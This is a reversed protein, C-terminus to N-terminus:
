AYIDKNQRQSHLSLHRHHQHSSLAISVAPHIISLQWLIDLTVTVAIAQPAIAAAYMRTFSAKLRKCRTVIALLRLAPCVISHHIILQFAQPLLREINYLLAQAISGYVRAALAVAVHM